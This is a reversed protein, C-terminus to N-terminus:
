EKENVRLKWAADYALKGDDVMERIVDVFLEHDRPAIIEELEEVTMPKKKLVTAVEGHLDEYAEMNEHKRNQICVDCIGCTNFTEEGFYDQIMQMRCRHATTAFAVMAEMKGIILTRRAEMRALNLSLRQADQRPTLYTLQPKDKVPQYVLVQLEDLHKLIKVMEATSIKLGKALLPESIRAFGSMLEGGFLRLLMKIPADFQAHAVQFEYLKGKDLALHIRPPSYFSENFQILGEEELKKLAAYVEAAHVNFRETFDHLDFDYGQGEGSGEALQYYNALAQYIKRLYAPAPQSQETKTKLNLVDADNYIMVAYARQGDRGGRGAEQYYSEINEPLDLHIVIRVDPKDIGMGFANTAVMVRKENKIWEEQRRNREEFDLGAHYFSASIGKKSLWEAFDQTAKRSRVYLIASGNVKTLIELVKREKHEAKRVVFSLNHRAFSKQFVGAHKRFALKDMIDDRVQQTATATLAIVPVEPKQERLAVIKLYSPRFDYGWQSICHAEDIAILSVKMQKVREMFLETHLREPSVYLFKIPGYICNNLLIDIERWPMGSHISVADINRRKLQEVQDKMLAILPTVVICLGERLLAPVQFCISKGGGTPLLALTDHGQLVSHIIEEQGPRFQSHNWYQKLITHPTEM